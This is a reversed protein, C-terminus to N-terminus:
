RDYEEAGKLYLKCSIKYSLYYLGVAFYPFIAMLVLTIDSMAGSDSLKLFFEYIKEPSGFITLDGFFLYEFAIIMIVMFFATKVHGGTKSGFRVLFPFEVANTVLMICLMEFAVISLTTGGLVASLVELFYCWIFLAIYLLLTFLYKEKIQGVGTIPTSTIFYAWKKTEDAEFFNATLMGLILFMMIFAFVSLLATIFETEAYGDKFIFPIFMIFSVLVEGGAIMLLNKKNLIFERYLLGAM